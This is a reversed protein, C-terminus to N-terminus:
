NEITGPPWDFDQQPVENHITTQHILILWNGKLISAIIKQLFNLFLSNYYLSITTTM